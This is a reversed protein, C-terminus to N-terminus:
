NRGNTDETYLIGNYFLYELESIVFHYIGEKDIAIEPTFCSQLENFLSDFTRKEDLLILINYSLDNILVERYGEGLLMPLCVIDSASNSHEGNIREKLLRVAMEPWHKPIEFISLHPNKGIVFEKREELSANLFYPYVSLRRELIYLSDNSLEKWEAIHDCLFDQYFALCKQVSMDPPTFRANGLRKNRQPFLEVIRKYYDPYRDLLTKGLLECIRLNRKHGGLTHLLKTHDFLYFNCFNHYDYGNDRISHGIVTSVTKNFKEVLAGFLIQEFLINNNINVNLNNVNNLQNDELFQFAVQCYEQIFSIDNGGLLGANYSPIVDREMAVKLFEPLRYNRRLLDNMMGKYYEGGIEKNQAVLEGLEISTDLRFPLHVDGDVHIFPENQSYYTLMKPYAWHIEPISLNDYDVIVNTYPLQLLEVFVKYGNSDTYLVVNKYNKRLSLCSLAWSMLHYQPNYWGFNDELLSKNATWFTQVIKM